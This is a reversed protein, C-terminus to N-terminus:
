PKLNPLPLSPKPPQPAQANKMRAVFEAVQRPSREELVISVHQRAVNCLRSGFLMFIQGDDKRSPVVEVQCGDSDQFSLKGEGITGRVPARPASEDSGLLLTLAATQDGVEDIYVARFDSKPANANDTPTVITYPLWKGSFKALSAAIETQDKDRSREFDKEASERDQQFKAQRARAEAVQRSMDAKIDSAIKDSLARGEDSLSSVANEIISLPQGPPMAKEWVFRIEWSRNFFGVREFRMAGPLSTGAGKQFTPSVLTKGDHRRAELFLDATAEIQAFVELEGEIQSSPALKILVGKITWASPDAPQGSASEVSALGQAQAAKLIEQDTPRDAAFALGSTALALAIILFRKM